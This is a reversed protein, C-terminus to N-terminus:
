RNIRVSRLMQQFVDEYSQFEREPATFVIFVLGDPRALTILWDTERSGGTIPSDNALYTSLANQGDVRIDEHYRIVRMNRNSQRFEAVLQDTAQELAAAAGQSSNQGSGQGYDRGQLQQGYGDVHPQYINVIVGYALAKNGNGDEVLGGRPAISAADGQGYPQWNDPYDINLISNQFTKFRDSPWDAQTGNRAGTDSQGWDTRLTSSVPIYYGSHSNIRLGNATLARRKTTSCLRYTQSTWRSASPRNKESASGFLARCIRRYSATGPFALFSATIIPRRGPVHGTGQPGDGTALETSSCSAGTSGAYPFDLLATAKATGDILRSALGLAEASHARQLRDGSVAVLCCQSRLIEVAAGRGSFREEDCRTGARDDRSKRSAVRDAEGTGLGLPQEARCFTARSQRRCVVRGTTPAAPHCHLTAAPPGEAGSAPEVRVSSRRVGSRCGARVRRVGEMGKGSSGSHGRAVGREDARQDCFWHM